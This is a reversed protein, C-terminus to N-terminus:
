KNQANTKKQSRLYNKKEKINLSDEKTFTRPAYKPANVPPVIAGEKKKEASEKHPEKTENLATNKEIVPEPIRKLPEGSKVKPHSSIVTSQQAKANVSLICMCLLLLTFFVINKTKYLTRIGM